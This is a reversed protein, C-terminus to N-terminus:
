LGTVIYESYHEDTATTTSSNRIQNLELFSQHAKSWYKAIYLDGKVTEPIDIYLNIM